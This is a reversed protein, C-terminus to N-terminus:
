LTSKLVAARMRRWGAVESSRTKYRGGGIDRPFAQRVSCHVLGDAFRTQMGSCRSAALLSSQEVLPGAVLTGKPRQLGFALIGKV